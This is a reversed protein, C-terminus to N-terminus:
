KLPQVNDLFADILRSNAGGGETGAAAIFLHTDTVVYRMTIRGAKGRAASGTQEFALEKGRGGMWSVSRPGSVRTDPPPKQLADGLMKDLTERVAAATMQPPLRAGGVMMMMESGDETTTRVEYMAAMDIGNVQGIPARGGRRKTPEKPFYARFGADEATYEKWDKPPSAKGAVLVYIGYGGGGILLILGLVVAVVVVLNTGSRKRRPRRRPRDEEDDDDDRRRSRPRDDDDDADRRRRSPRDDDDRRRRPRDDEDDDAPTARTTPPLPPPAPRPKPPVPVADVVAVEEAPLPMPVPVLAGCGSKPCRVHKGAGADPASLKTGCSQCAVLIPM